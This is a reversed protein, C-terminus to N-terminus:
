YYPVTKTRQGFIGQFSVTMPVTVILDAPLDLRPSIACTEKASPFPSSLFPPIVKMGIHGAAQGTSHSLCFIQSLVLHILVLVPFSHKKEKEKKKKEQNEDNPFRKRM